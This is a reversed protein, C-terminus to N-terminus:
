EAVTMDKTEKALLHVEKDRLLLRAIEEIVAVAASAIDAMDDLNVPVLPQSDPKFISLCPQIFNGSRPFGNSM